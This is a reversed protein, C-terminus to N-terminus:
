ALWFVVAALPAEHVCMWPNRCAPTEDGYGYTELEKTNRNTPLLARTCLAYLAKLAMRFEVPRLGAM